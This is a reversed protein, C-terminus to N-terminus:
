RLQPEPRIRRPKPQTRRPLQQPQHIAEVTRYRRGWELYYQYSLGQDLNGYEALGENLWLPVLASTGAPQAASSSTPHTRAHTNRHRAHRSASPRRERRPFGARRHHTRPKYHRLTRASRRDDRRQQQLPHGSHSNRNRRRHHTADLGVATFRSRGSADRPDRSTGHYYVKISGSDVEDWEYRADHMITEYTRHYISTATPM